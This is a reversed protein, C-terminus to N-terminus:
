DVGRACSSGHSDHCGAITQGVLPVEFVLTVGLEGQGIREGAVGVRDCHICGTIAALDVAHHLVLVTIGYVGIYNGQGHAFLGEFPWGM